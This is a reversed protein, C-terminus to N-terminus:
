VDFWQKLGACFSILKRFQIESAYVGLGPISFDIVMRGARSWSVSNRQATYFQFNKTTEELFLLAGWM